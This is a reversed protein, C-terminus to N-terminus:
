EGGAPKMRALAAKVQELFVEAAIGRDAAIEGLTRRLSVSPDLGLADRLAAPEINHARAVYRLPMWAAPPEGAHLRLRAVRIIFRVALATTVLAAALFALRLVLRRNVRRRFLKNGPAPDSM